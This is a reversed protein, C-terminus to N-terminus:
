RRFPRAVGNLKKKLTATLKRRHRISGFEKTYMVDDELVAIVVADANLCEKQLVDVCKKMDFPNM